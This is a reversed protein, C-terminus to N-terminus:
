ATSSAPVRGYLRAIDTWIADQKAKVLAGTREIEVQNGAVVARAFAPFVPLVPGMVAAMTFANLADVFTRTSVRLMSHMVIELDSTRFSASWDDKNSLTVTGHAPQPKVHWHAVANRIRLAMPEVMQPFAFGLGKELERM